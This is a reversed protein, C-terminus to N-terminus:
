GFLPYEQLFANVLGGPGVSGYDGCRCVGLASFNWCRSDKAFGAFLSVMWLRLWPLACTAKIRVLGAARSHYIAYGSAMSYNHQKLDQMTAVQVGCTRSIIAWLWGSLIFFLTMTECVKLTWTLGVM